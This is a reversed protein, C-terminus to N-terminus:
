KTTCSARTQVHSHIKSNRIIPPGKFIAAPCFSYFLFGIHLLNFVQCVCSQIIKSFKISKCFSYSHKHDFENQAGDDLSDILLKANFSASIMEQGNTSNSTNVLTLFISLYHTRTEDVYNPMLNVRWVSTNQGDTLVLEESEIFSKGPQLEM